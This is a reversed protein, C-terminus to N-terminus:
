SVVLKAILTGYTHSEVEVQGPRDIRLTFTEAEGTGDYDLEAEPDSHVHIQGPADATVVLDVEEGVPVEVADGSPSVEGDAVTIAISVREADSSGGSTSSDDGCATGAAGIVLLAALVGLRRRM